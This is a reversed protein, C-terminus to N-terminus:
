PLPGSSGLRRRLRPWSARFGPHLPLGDVEPLPVWRVAATEENWRFSMEARPRALVTTYSWGGHDDVDTDWVSVADAAIDMEEGAERLAAAVANEHQERAGGPVSWTGGHHTRAARLQLLMAAPTAVLLGAAGFRGWHRHGATCTTWGDGSGAVPATPGAV